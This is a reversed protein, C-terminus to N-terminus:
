SVVLNGHAILDQLSTDVPTDLVVANAMAFQTGAGDRDVSIETHGNSTTMQVFDNISDQLPDYGTLMKSIDLVDRDLVKFDKITDVAGNANAILSFLDAGRGGAFIDAGAGGYLSDNGTGGYITGTNQDDATIRNNVKDALYIDGASDIKLILSTDTIRAIMNQIITADNHITLVGHDSQRITADDVGLRGITLAQSVDIADVGKMTPLKDSPLWALAVQIVLTDVGAGLNYTDQMTYAHVGVVTDDGSGGTFTEAKSTATFVMSPDAYGVFHAKWDLPNDSYPKTNLIINDMSIQDPRTNKLLAISDLYNVWVQTDEGVAMIHVDSALITRNINMFVLKDGEAANFDTVTDTAGWGTMENTMVFYDTGKGGTLTDAQTDGILVDNGNGGILNDNGGAGRLYAGNDSGEVVDPGRSGFAYTFMIDNGAAINTYPHQVGMGSLVSWGPGSTNGYSLISQDVIVTNGSDMGGHFNVDRNTSSVHILNDIEAGWSSFLVAHRTDFVTLDTFESHQTGAINIGYGNGGEGKNQAGIVNINSIDADYMRAAMLGISGANLISINSVNTGVTNFFALANTLNWEPMPNAILGPDAAGLNTQVTFDSVNLNTLGDMRQIQAQGGVMDFDLGDKLYLTNGEIREVVTLSDRLAHNVAFPDAAINGYLTGSTLVANKLASGLYIDSAFDEPIAQNYLDPGNPQYVHVEGGVKFKSTDQVTIAHTGAAADAQLTSIERVSGLFQIISQGKSFQAEFVTKDEGAGQITLNSRLVNIGETLIYKGEGFQVTSFDKATNLLNSLDATTIGTKVTYVNSTENFDVTGNYLTSM